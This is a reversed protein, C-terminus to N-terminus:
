ILITTPLICGRRTPLLQQQQEFPHDCPLARCPHGIINNRHRRRKRSISSHNSYSRRRHSYHRHVSRQDLSSCLRNSPIRHISHQQIPLPRPPCHLHRRRRRRLHRLSKPTNVSPPPSPHCKWSNFSAGFVVDVVAYTTTHTYLTSNSHFSQNHNGASTPPYSLTDAFFISPSSRERTQKSPQGNLFLVM